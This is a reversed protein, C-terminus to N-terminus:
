LGFRSKTANYNQFIEQASLERNYIKVQSINGHLEFGSQKFTGIRMDENINPMSSLGLGVVSMPINISNVYVYGTTSGNKVFVINFYNTTLNYGLTGSVNTNQIYGTNSGRGAAFYIANNAVELFLDYYGISPGASILIPEGATQALLKVWLDVSWYDKNKFFNTFGNPVNIYDNIGDLVIIGKNLGSFTPGNTLTGDNGFGTLDYITNGSGSYSRSNAPDFYMVLGDPVITPNYNLGM